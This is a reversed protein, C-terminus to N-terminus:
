PHPKSIFHWPNRFLSLFHMVRDACRWGPVLRGILKWTPLTGSTNRVSTVSSSGRLRMASCTSTLAGDDGGRLSSEVFRFESTLVCSHSHPSYWARSCTCHYILCLKRIPTIQNSVECTLFPKYNEMKEHVEDNSQHRKWSYESKFTRDCRSFLFPTKSLTWLMYRLVGIANDIILVGANIPHKLRICNHRM